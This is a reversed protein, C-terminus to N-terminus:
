WASTSLVRRSMHMSSTLVHQKSRWKATDPVSAPQAAALLPLFVLELLAHLGVTTHKRGGRRPHSARKQRLTPALSPPSPPLFLLSPLIPDPSLTQTQWRAHHAIHPVSAARQAGPSRSCRSSCAPTPLM